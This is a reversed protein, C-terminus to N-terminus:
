VSGAGFFEKIGSTERASLVADAEVNGQFSGGVLLEAEDACSELLLPSFDADIEFESRKFEGGDEGVGTFSIELEIEETPDAGVVVRVKEFESEGGRAERRVAGIASM